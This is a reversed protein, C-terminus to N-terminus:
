YGPCWAVGKDPPQLNTQASKQWLTQGPCWAVGKHPPQLNTQESIHWLTQGPCWAVGEDTCINAMVDTRSM